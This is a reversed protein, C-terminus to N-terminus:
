QGIRDLLAIAEAKLENTGEAVVEQLIERAGDDDGM